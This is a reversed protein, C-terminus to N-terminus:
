AKKVLRLGQSYDIWSLSHGGYFGQIVKGTPDQWGYLGVQTGNKVVDKFCGAILRPNRNGVEVAVRRATERHISESNMTAATGDHGRNVIKWADIKVDAARWIADVLGPTPLECGARAALDVAEGIGVPALYLPCVLWEAGSYVVRPWTTPDADVGAPIVVPEAGLHSRVRALYHDWPFNPGPDWHGKGGQLGNTVDVHGCVGSRVGNKLDITTVRVPAIGHRRCIDATLEASRELLAISYIDAWEAATQKAYGAHEIGISYGNVPGAHWATDEELVSQVISDSDVNYHASAQPADKGAFWAAVNEATAEKEPAEMTHIVVMTVPTKRGKSYSKAQIFKM